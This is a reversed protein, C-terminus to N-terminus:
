YKINNWKHKDNSHKNNGYLLPPPSIQAANNTRKRRRTEREVGKGKPQLNAMAKLNSNKPRQSNNRVDQVDEMGGQPNQIIDNITKDVRNTNIRETTKNGNELETTTPKPNEHQLPNPGIYQEDCCKEDEENRSNQRETETTGPIELNCRNNSDTNLTDLEQQIPISPGAQTPCEPDTDM